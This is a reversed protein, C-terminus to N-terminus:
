VFGGDVFLTQGSIFDSAESALFVAAGLLDSTEVFRGMMIRKRIGEFRAPDAAMTVATFPTKTATPAIANVRIGEPLWETSLNVTLQSVAAKSSSYASKGRGSTKSWTSSLNIIKGYGREIMYPAIKQCCFFTGRVNVGYLNDWDDETIDMAAKTFGLGANNVLALKTDKDDKILNGVHDALMSIEDLITVDIQLVDAWGGAQIIGDKVENLKELDRAALVVKAGLAAYTEAFSQGIGQSAGTIVILHGDLSFSPLPDPM